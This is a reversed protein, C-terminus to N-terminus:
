CATNAKAKGYVPEEIHKPFTFFFTSGSDPQSEVWIKGGYLEVIKKVVALGIGATEPEDKRPLTQFIKFIKDFYRQEIGPGNDCVYFKWFNGQEVCGVKILGKTKDMFTVANALLNQFVLELHEYECTIDPLSDMAIEVNDSPTIGRIIDPLMTNLDVQREKGKTRVLKSYQLMGDILKDIRVVRTKLLRIQERGQEDFQGSYDSIIWDALTGIGRVPTKLDHAAIHVFDQLQINSRSLEKVAAELDKNLKELAQEAKIREAAELKLAIMDAVSAAFDQETSTWERVPGIHEHCIIGIMQGHLRIPVHIVSNIGKPKLYSEAFECIRTDSLSNNVALIRSSEMAKCYHPYDCTKLSHGTEHTKKDKIFLDRCVIETNDHNFFGIGVQAVDLVESDQETILRFLSDLDQEQINALKLLTNHHHMIQEARETLLVEAKRQETIDADVGRYGLLEGKEDLMPMASTSLWVTHGDKHINRNLTKQFSTKKAFTDYAAKKLAERDEPHFMDYFYKNGVIEDPSFGLIEKVVPSVYTYLGDANVEWVCEKANEVVQSFRQESMRLASETKKRGNVEDSLDEITKKLRQTMRQFSNALQGMESSGPKTLNTDLNGLAIQVTAKQLEAIPVVISRYIISSALLAIGMVALGVLLTTNRLSVIHAFIEATDTETVLTWGLGKFDKYGHSHAHAFLMRKEGTKEGILYCKHGPWDPDICRPVLQNNVDGLFGYGKTSYIIKGNGNILHLQTTKYEADLKAENIIAITEKINPTAKIVGIFNNNADNIKVAIETSFVKSSEDYKVNSVFLGDRKAIQWWEEDAQYYDTARGTQAVNTGYRNTVFIEALLPYGYKNQYFKQRSQLEIALKNNTLESIIPLDAGNIWDRDIQAIYGNPDSMNEFQANSRTIYEKVLENTSRAQVEEIRTYINRSIKDLIQEALDASNKGIAEELTTQSTRLAFYGFGAMLLTLGVFGLTLKHGIKM